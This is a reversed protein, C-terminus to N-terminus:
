FSIGHINSIILEVADNKINFLPEIANRIRTKLRHSTQKKRKKEDMGIM